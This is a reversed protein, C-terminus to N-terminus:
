PPSVEKSEQGEELREWNAVLEARHELIWPRVRTLVRRPLRGKVVKGTLTLKAWGGAYLVHCHPPPHDEFYM